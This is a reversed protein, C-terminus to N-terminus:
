GGCCLALGLILGGVDIDEAAVEGDIGAAAQMLQARM